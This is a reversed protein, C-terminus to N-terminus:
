VVRAPSIIPSLQLFGITKPRIEMIFDVTPTEPDDVAAIPTKPIEGKLVEEMMGKKCPELHSGQLSDTGSGVLQSTSLPPVCRKSSAAATATATASASEPFLPQSERINFTYESSAFAANVATVTLKSKLDNKASGLDM